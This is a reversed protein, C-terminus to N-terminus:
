SAPASGDGDAATRAAVDARLLAPIARARHDFIAELDRRVFLRRALAGAPGWGVGHHVVDTMTTGGDPAPAFRHEHHWLAFPGRLQVDVFRHPPEWRQIISTWRLPVGHLRLAYQIVTGTGMPIPEPTITRFRLLDPTIRDLNGAAAFFPFVQEPTGELRQTRRLVDIRM